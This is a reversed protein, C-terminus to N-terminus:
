CENASSFQAILKSLTTKDLDLPNQQNCIRKFIKNYVDEDIISRDKFYCINNEGYIDTYKIKIMHHKSIEIYRRHNKYLSLVDSYISMFKANNNDGRSKYILGNLNQYLTSRCFYDTIVFLKHNAHESVDLVTTVNIDNIQKVIYGENQVQLIEDEYKNDDDADIYCSTINFVPQKARKEKLFAEKQLRYQKRLVVATFIATIVSSIGLLINSIDGITSLRIESLM